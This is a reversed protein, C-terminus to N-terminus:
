IPCTCCVELFGTATILVMFAEALDGIKNELAPAMSGIGASRKLIHTVLMRHETLFRRGQLVNHAGRSLVAAGM